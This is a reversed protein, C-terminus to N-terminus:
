QLHAIYRSILLVFSPDPAIPNEHLGRSLFYTSVAPKIYGEGEAEPLLGSREEPTLFQKIRPM